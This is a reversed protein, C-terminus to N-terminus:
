EVKGKIRVRVYLICVHICIIHIYICIIHIYIYIYIIHLYICLIYITGDAHTRRCLDTCMNNVYVCESMRGTMYIYIYTYITLLYTTRGYDLAVRLSRKEIAM